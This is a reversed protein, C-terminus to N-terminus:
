RVGPLLPVPYGGRTRPLRGDHKIEHIWDPVPPPKSAADPHVAPRPPRSPRSLRRDPRVTVALHDSAGRRGEFHALTIRAALMLAYCASGSVDFM